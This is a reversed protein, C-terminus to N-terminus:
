GSVDTPVCVDPLQPRPLVSALSYITKSSLNERKTYIYMRFITKGRRLMYFVRYVISSGLTFYCQAYKCLRQMSVRPCVMTWSYNNRQFVQILLCLLLSVQHAANPLVAGDVFPAFGSTFRPPDLRVDLLDDVNRLRLCPAIDDAEIDGSCGTQDAVGRKVALPDRQLAWSSLASGGLLVVRDVLEAVCVLSLRGYCGNVM